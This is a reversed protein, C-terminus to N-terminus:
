IEMMKEQITMGMKQETKQIKEMIMAMKKHFVIMTVMVIEMKKQIQIAGLKTSTQMVLEIDYTTKKGQYTVILREVGLKTNDFNSVMSKTIDKEEETDDSYTIKIKEELYM